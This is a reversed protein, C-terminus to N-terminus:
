LEHEYKFYRGKRFFLLQPYSQVKFKDQLESLQTANYSGLKLNLDRTVVLTNFAKWQELFADCAACKSVQFLILWDNKSKDNYVDTAEYFNEDTLVHVVREARFMTHDIGDGFVLAVISWFILGLVLNM